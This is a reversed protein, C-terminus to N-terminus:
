WRLGSGKSWASEDASHDITLGNAYHGTNRGVVEREHVHDALNSRCKGHTAGDHHLWCRLIRKSDDFEGLDHM